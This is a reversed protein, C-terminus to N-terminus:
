TETITETEKAGARQPSFCCGLLVVVEEKMACAPILM